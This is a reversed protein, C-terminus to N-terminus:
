KMFIVSVKAGQQEASFIVNIVRASYRIKTLLVGEGRGARNWLVICVSNSCQWICGQKESFLRCDIAEPSSNVCNFHGACEPRSLWCIHTYVICMFMYLCSVDLAWILLDNWVYVQLKDSTYFLTSVTM